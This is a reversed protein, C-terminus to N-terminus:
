KKDSSSSKSRKLIVGILLMIGGFILKQVNFDGFTMDPTGATALLYSGVIFLASYICFFILVLFSAGSGFAFGALGGLMGSINKRKSAASSAGVAGSVTSIGMAALLLPTIMVAQVITWVWYWYYLFNSANLFSVETTMDGGFVFKWGIYLLALVLGLM